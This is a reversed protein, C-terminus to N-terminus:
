KLKLHNEYLSKCTPIGFGILVAIAPLAIWAKNVCIHIFAVCAACVFIFLAFFAFIIKSNM